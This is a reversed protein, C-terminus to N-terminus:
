TKEYDNEKLLQPESTLSTYAPAQSPNRIYWGSM